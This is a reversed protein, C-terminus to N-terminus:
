LHKLFNIKEAWQPFDILPNRNGQAKHTTANRHKEYVGVPFDKHWKLLVEMGKEKYKEEIIGPYRLIFYLTSRAVIGKGNEPEFRHGQWMGCNDRLTEYIADEEPKYHAFDTFPYNSRSTNCRPDCAFLHHIDSRMPYRKSFWSQPVVHECNFMFGSEFELLMQRQQEESHYTEYKILNEYQIRLSRETEYDKEIFEEPDYGKNSYISKGEGGPHLDITPYLHQHRAESYSYTKRHTSKLLHSLEAFLSNGDLKTPDIGAYYAKIAEEDKEQNYYNKEVKYKVKNIKATLISDIQEDEEDKQKSGPEVEPPVVVEEEENFILRTVIPAHDSFDEVFGELSKDLRVIAADDQSIEGLRADKTVFIHDILSKHRQGVYTIAHEQADDATLTFLDPSQTLSSLINEGLVQNFDGGLIVPLSEEEQIDAVIKRLVGSAQKRRARSTKDGFAKLHVVIMLFEVQKDGERVKCQAFLPLRGGAFVSKGRVRSNLIDAYKDYLDDRKWAETTRKDYLVALDQQWDADFYVFDTDFGEKDLAQTLRDMAGREVESLGLVDMGMFGVLEAIGNVRHDNVQNNFHEINWFGIDAYKTSGEFSLVEVEYIKEGPKVLGNVDFFGLYTSSGQQFSLVEKAGKSYPHDGLSWETLQAVIASIRVGENIVTKNDEVSTWSAHHIAVLDWNDNFAPSGSSGGETDTTYHVVKRDIFTVKNDHLAVQKKRGKAHQIINIREQLIVTAPDRELPIPEVEEIGTTSCAVLTFDLETKPSSLFLTDPELRVFIPSGEEDYFFEAIRGKASDQTPFVHNNTMIIGPAVLFGTGYSNDLVFRCVADVRKAGKKLFSTSMLNSEEYLKEFMLELKEESIEKEGTIGRTFDEPLDLNNQEKLKKVRREALSAQVEPSLLNSAHALSSEKGPTEIPEM